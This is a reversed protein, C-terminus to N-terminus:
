QAFRPPRRTPPPAYRWGDLEVRPLYFPLWEAVERYVQARVEYEMAADLHMAALFEYTDARRLCEEIVRLSEDTLPPRRPPADGAMLVVAVTSLFAISARRM